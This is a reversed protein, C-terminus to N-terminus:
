NLWILLRVVGLHLSSILKKEKAINIIEKAQSLLTNQKVQNIEYFSIKKLKEYINFRSPNSGTLLLIKNYKDLENFFATELEKGFLIKTPNYFYFSKM